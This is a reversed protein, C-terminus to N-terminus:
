VGDFTALVVAAASACGVAAAFMALGWALGQSRAGVMGLVVAVLMIPLLALHGVGGVLRLVDPVHLLVGVAGGVPVALLFIVAATRVM